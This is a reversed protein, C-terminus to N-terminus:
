DLMGNSSLRVLLPCPTLFPLPAAAGESVNSYLFPAHAFKLRIRGFIQCNKSFDTFLQAIQVRTIKSLIMRKYGGGALNKPRWHMHIKTEKRTEKKVYMFSQQVIGTNELTNVPNSTLFSHLMLVLRRSTEQYVKIIWLFTWCILNIGM